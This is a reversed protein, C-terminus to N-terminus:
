EHFMQEFLAYHEQTMGMAQYTRAAGTNRHDVYLRLGRAGGQKATGQIHRYLTQFVGRRRWNPAVYVSQIWWVEANRWDSWERTIMCQGVVQDAVEAMFYEAGVQRNFVAEVGARVVDPDLDMSETEKAMAVNWSAIRPADGPLAARCRIAAWSSRLASKQVKGMANRPLADIYRISKPCKYPALTSRCWQILDIPRVTAEDKLVVSAVVREGLDPESAGVVAAARVAQHSRLRAEVESPYVNLGGSLIMDKSRGVISIYGDEDIRGLDGSRMWGDVLVESTREPLRLYGSFVSPGRIEIEGVQSPPCLRRTEEDVVRISVGPLPFGVTGARREGHLPNSLVIGVETMGYRELIRHGFRAQFREHDIAPLPASGSTFLRVHDLNWTSEVPLNLLRNYFTPVGMFVTGKCGVLTDLANAADFRDMWHTTAGARLAGHQAVFLGHVHFLPLAHVLVDDSSWGWAGHLAEVTAQLNGHSLVAGKARGTTGSTYLVMATTDAPVDSPLRHATSDNLADRLGAGVAVVRTVDPDGAVAGKPLVALVARSDRLYFDVESPTYAPNLPLTVVGSALAGLHLELFPLGRPMQLAVVDGPRAGQEALWGAAREVRAHLEAYTLTTDTTVIATKDPMWSSRMRQYWSM